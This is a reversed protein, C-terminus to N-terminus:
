NRSGKKGTLARVADELLLIRGTKVLPVSLRAVLKNVDVRALEEPTSGEFDRCLLEAAAILHPCASARFRLAVIKGDELGAAMVLRVDSGAEAVDASLVTDYSRNLDGAHIPNLFCARVEDNYPEAPSM